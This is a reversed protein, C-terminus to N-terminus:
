VFHTERKNARYTERTSHFHATMYNQVILRAHAHSTQFADDLTNTRYYDQAFM